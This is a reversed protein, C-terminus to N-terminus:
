GRERCSARGIKMIQFTSSASNLLADVAKITFSYSGITTPMGSVVGTSSNLSLGPPLSGSLISLAYPGSGGIAFITETYAIGLTASALAQAFVSLSSGGVAQHSAAVKFAEVNWGSKLQYKPMCALGASSSKVPLASGTSASTNGAVLEFSFAAWNRQASM